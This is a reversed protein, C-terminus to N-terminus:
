DGVADKIPDPLRHFVSLLATMRNSKRYAGFVVRPRPGFKAKYECLRPRMAGVLDYRTKGRAAARRIVHWDLVDNVPFDVTSKPFGQWRYVTDDSELTIGGGAYEGAVEVEYPRVTGEPMADYLDVGFQPDIGHYEEGVSDIRGKVHDMIRRISAEDGEAVTYADEDANRINSRADGSFERLLADEDPTIDLVYTYMPEVDFDNWILPRADRYRDQTRIDVYDPDFNTEIWARCRGVFERHWRERKRRKLGDTLLLPGLYPVQMMTPPSMVYRLAGMPGKTKEFLPLLGMPEQGNYGVLLHLTADAERTMVELAEHRHFPMAEPCREIYRNWTEGEDTELRTVEIGM